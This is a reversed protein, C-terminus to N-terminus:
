PQGRMLERHIWTKASVWDRKVSSPSIRMAEAIEEVSLGAFFRLEVIRSQDADLRALRELAEDLDLVSISTQAAPLIADEIAITVAGGGRKAAQQARAHDVLIGRMLKAALAFFHVRDTWVVDM